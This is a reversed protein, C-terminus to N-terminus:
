VGSAKELIKREHRMDSVDYTYFGENVKETHGLLAAATITFVGNMKLRSDITRRYSHISKLKEVGAQLRKNGACRTIATKHIRGDENAFVYECFYGYKMEVKKIELLLKEIKETMPIM